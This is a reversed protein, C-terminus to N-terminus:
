NEVNEPSRRCRYAEAGDSLAMRHSITRSPDIRGSAVLPVLTPLEVQVSCLGIAFSLSRIQTLAMNFDFNSNQNAGVVSVSGEVRALQLALQITADAGVAEIVRDAGRGATRAFVEEVPDESDIPEAGLEEAHRRREPILDIAFVRSAGLVFASEVACLGVPGLGLVAVTDGPEIGARRAGFYATPLNDTLLIAQEDSISDPILRLGTDASPVEVAEAQSGQLVHGVGYVGFGASECGIIWGQRCSECTACGSSAPILVRDGVGFRRVGSGIEVIEGVAEHGVVYGPDATFGHGHYIHLDSGCIGARRVRVVAADLSQPSPDPRTELRIDQPGHYVLARM